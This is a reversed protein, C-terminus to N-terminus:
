FLYVAGAKGVAVAKGSSNIRLDSFIATDTTEIKTWKKGADEVKYLATKGENEVISYGLNENQFALKSVNGAVGTKLITWNEGGDTTKLFASNKGGVFAEKDSILYVSLLSEVLPRVPDIYDYTGDPKINIVYILGFNGVLMGIKEKLFHVDSMYGFLTEYKTQALNVTNVYHLETYERSHFNDYFQKLVFGEQNKPYSALTADTPRAIAKWTAGGDNTALVSKGSLVGVKEDKFSVSRMVVNTSSYNIESWTKGLDTSKFLYGKSDDNGLAFLTQDDAFSLSVLDAKKMVPDNFFNVTKPPDVVVVPPTTTPTVNVPTTPVPTDKKESCALISISWLGIFSIIQFSKM